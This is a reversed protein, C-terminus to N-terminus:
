RRAFRMNGELNALMLLDRVINQMRSAQQEMMDLYRARDAEGLPIDRMTELFGSLVTLPTQLEHSVNAVFDRRM